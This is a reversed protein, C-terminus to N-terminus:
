RALCPAIKTARCLSQLAQYQYTYEQIPLRPPLDLTPGDVCRLERVCPLDCVCVVCRAYSVSV